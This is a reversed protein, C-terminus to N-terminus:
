GSECGCCCSSLCRRACNGLLPRIITADTEGRYSIGRFGSRESAAQVIARYSHSPIRSLAANQIRLIAAFGDPSAGGMLAGANAKRRLIDVELLLREMTQDTSENQLFPAEQQYVHGMADPGNLITEVDEGQTFTDGGANSCVQRAFTDM